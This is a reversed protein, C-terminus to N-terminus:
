HFMERCGKFHIGVKSLRVKLSLLITSSVFVEMVTTVSGTTMIIEMLTVLLSRTMLRMAGVESQRLIRM